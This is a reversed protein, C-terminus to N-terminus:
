AAMHHTAALVTGLPHWRVSEDHKTAHIGARMSVHAQGILQPYKLLLLSPHRTSTISFYRERRRSCNYCNYSYCCWRTLANLVEHQSSRLSGALDVLATGPLRSGAPRAEPALSARAVLALFGVQSSGTSRRSLDGFIPYNRRPPVIRQLFNEDASLSCGPM